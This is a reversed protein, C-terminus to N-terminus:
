RNYYVFTPSPSAARSAGKRQVICTKGGDILSNIDFDM